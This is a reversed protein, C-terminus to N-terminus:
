SLSEGDFCVNILGPTWTRSDPNFGIDPAPMGISIFLHYRGSSTSQLQVGIQRHINYGSPWDSGDSTGIFRGCSDWFVDSILGCFSCGAQVGEDWEWESHNYRKYLLRPHVSSLDPWDRSLDHGCADCRGEVHGNISADFASSQYHEKM